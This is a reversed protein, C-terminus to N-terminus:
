RKRGRRGGGGALQTGRGGGLLSHVPVERLVEWLVEAQQPFLWPWWFQWSAWPLAPIRTPWRECATIGSM